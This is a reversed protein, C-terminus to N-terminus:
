LVSTVGGGGYRSLIRRASSTAQTCATHGPGRGTARSSQSCSQTVRGPHAWDRRVTISSKPGLADLVIRESHHCGDQAVVLVVAFIIALVFLLAAMVLLFVIACGIGWPCNIAAVVLVLVVFFAAVGLLGCTARYRIVDIDHM